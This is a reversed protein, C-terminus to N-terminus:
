RQVIAVVRDTSTAKYHGIPYQDLHRFLAIPAAIRCTFFEVAVQGSSFGVKASLDKPQETRWQWKVQAPPAEILRHHSWNCLQGLAGIEQLERRLISAILFSLPSRDGEIAQMFDTLASEPRPPLDLNGATAIAKELQATTSFAEPLAWVIGAGDTEARYLYSILRFVPKLQLGPLKLLAAAPNISSVFWRGPLKAPALQTEPAGGFRIVLTSSALVFNSGTYGPSSLSM